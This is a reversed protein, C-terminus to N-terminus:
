PRGGEDTGIVWALRLAGDDPARASLKESGFAVTGTWTQKGATLRVRVKSSSNAAAKSSASWTSTVPM